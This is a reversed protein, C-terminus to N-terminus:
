ERTGKLDVDTCFNPKLENVIGGDVFNQEYYFLPYQEDGPFGYEEFVGYRFKAWEHVFVKEVPGFVAPTTTNLRYLFNPTVHIYEGREGCGKPQLTYPADMYLPNYTNVRINGDEYFYESSISGGYHQKWTKPLVITVSNIYAYGETAM